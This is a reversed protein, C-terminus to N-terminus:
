HPIEDKQLGKPKAEPHCFLSGNCHKLARDNLSNRGEDNMPSYAVFFIAKASDIPISKNVLCDKLVKM